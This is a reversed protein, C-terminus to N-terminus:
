PEVGFEVFSAHDSSRYLRETAKQFDAAKANPIDTFTQPNRDALPFWSSQVQIMIRHGRQFCHFIDPMAFQIQAIEGPQFPEPHEFSNRFKGRFPEGRVLQEYGSLSDGTTEPYVDILKVVFDSDTGTTSVFLKPSIPGAVTLDDALPETEYTLVDPRGQVFRQDADMYERAMSLTPQSYFPVPNAPDSVYEDFGANQSPAAFSLKGDAQFYLKRPIVNAPPWQQEKRWVNKGTEFMYAKPLAADDANKLYHRFFPLEIEDQFFGSNNSGFSLDGLNDGPLRNWGGHVWPGMVLQDSSGPSQKNIARFTKLTGSLDEADFWGGVVLIAPKINKLHPLVDRSRWFEDYTTHTYCDTWYPNKFQFYKEDSNVLPGMNLYFQYGDQTGYDFRSERMPIEPNNQKGFATYFSFNAILFFAGNHYADDGMYIDAMPAQPSAAVLAPHANITGASTYFGPYSTGVLGVRGNNNPVNKLLWEITDYTDSAESIETGELHDPEPRMEVFKGESMNRGRVDQYVFIYGDEAFKVGPGLQRPFKDEGYPSVGYPTRTMLFPYKQSPSADNPVYVATFLHVGDRMAIKYERKTYHSKMDFQAFLACPLCFLLFIRLKLM